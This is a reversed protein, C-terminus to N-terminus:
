KIIQYKFNSKNIEGEYSVKIKDTNINYENDCIIGYGKFSFAIKNDKIYLVDCLETKINPKVSKKNIEDVKKNDVNELKEKNM